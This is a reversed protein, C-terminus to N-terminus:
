NTSESGYNQPKRSSIQDELKLQARRLDGDTIIGEIKNQIWFLLLVTTKAFQEFIMSILIQVLSLCILM